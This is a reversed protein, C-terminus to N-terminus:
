KSNVNIEELKKIRRSFRKGQYEINGNDDSVLYNIQYDNRKLLNEIIVDGCIEWAFSKSKNNLYCLDLVINCLEYKNNCTTFCQHRYEENLLQLKISYDERAQKTQNNPRINKLETQYKEYLRKIEKYTSQNYNIDCKLITYDFTSSKKLSCIYGDFEREVMHCLRNMTSLGDFVPFNSDYFKLFDKEDATINEKKRIENIKNRYDFLGCINSKKIFNNFKTKQEPYIYNMFYPKKDVCLSNYFETNSKNEDEKVKRKIYWSKPMPESIIGKTRDICNQQYHQGCKIRYDLIAYEKSDKDFQSQVDFMATIRNTIAGIEDGFSNKNALVLLDETINQKEAKRQVCLISPTDKTNNMLTLNNTSFIIDGDNDAGNLAHTTTDHCNFIMITNMYKYWEAVENNNVVNMKRINNHCTMPARFCVIKDQKKDNWYKSYVENSKLLGYNESNKILGFIHQCLAYPDGSLMQYNGNVSLVGIKMDNIRKKIIYNIRDIVYPDDIMRSDIMLAKIFDDDLNNLVNEETISLGRLFLISKNVDAHLVSKIENVTPSILNCIDGDTLDYSQIFQYNLTRENDLIDPCVKTASFTYGNTIYNKHYSEYDPYCEWLKMMSSTLILNVNNIDYKNGWVDTIINKKAVQRAFKHFDFTYIMGKVFANRVCCGPILYDILLDNGWQKALGPSMLGFGDSANLTIESEKEEMIPESGNDGDKIEIVNSYFSLKLDDVVVVGDPESLPISASCALGKYAEFKAPVLKINTDRGNDLRKNLEDALSSYIVTSKKVGNSTGVLRKFINEKGNFSFGRQLKDIDNPNDMIVCVYECVLQLKELENYINKIEKRNETTKDERRLRELKKICCNFNKINENRDIGNIDDIFRLVQSDALTIIEQRKRAESVSLNYNYKAKIIDQSHIKFIYRQYMQHKAM